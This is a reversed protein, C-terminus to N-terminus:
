KATSARSPLDLSLARLGNEGATAESLAAAAEPSAGKTSSTNHFGCRSCCYPCVAAMASGAVGVLALTLLIRKLM